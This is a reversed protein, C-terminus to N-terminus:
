KRINNRSPRYQRDRAAAEQYESQKVTRLHQKPSRYVAVTSRQDENQLIHCSVPGERTQTQVKELTRRKCYTKSINDTLTRKSHLAEQTMHPPCVFRFRLADARCTKM